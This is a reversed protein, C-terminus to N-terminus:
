ILLHCKTEVALTGTFIMCTVKPSADSRGENKKLSVFFQPFIKIKGMKFIFTWEESLTPYGIIILYPQIIIYDCGVFRLPEFCCLNM